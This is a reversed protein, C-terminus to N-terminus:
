LFCDCLANGKIKSQNRLTPFIFSFMVKNKENRSLEEEGVFVVLWGDGYEYCLKNGRKMNVM